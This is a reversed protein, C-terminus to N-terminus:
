SGFTAASVMSVAAMQEQMMALTKELRAFKEILRTEVGELRAEENEIRREMATIRDDLIDQSIDLRGNAKLVEDLLDELAGAVGQKVNITATYTGDGQTLDVSFQLGNEPYLPGGNESDFTSDGTILGEDTWTAGTNWETAGAERIRVADIENSVLDVEVEYTGATTYKDSAGYFQVISSSSNGSMTAGLLELVSTFDESIADNFVDTDFEMMGEGDISLGIDSAQIFDDITDVFGDAIGIFPDRAQTKILSVAIDNSLIGMKKAETDYETKSKLETILENYASVMTEIKKSIMATNRSITIEVPNDTETVDHLNLTIGTLADTISNSNRHIYGDNGKTTEVFTCNTPGVLASTDISIM